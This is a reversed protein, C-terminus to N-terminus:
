VAKSSPARDHDTLINFITKYIVQSRMLIHRYLAVIYYNKTSIAAFIHSFSHFVNTEQHLLFGINEMRKRVNKCLITLLAYLTSSVKFIYFFSKIKAQANLETVHWIDYDKCTGNGYIYMYNNKNQLSM